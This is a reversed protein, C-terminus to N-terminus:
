VRAHEVLANWTGCARDLLLVSGGVRAPSVAGWSAPTTEREVGTGVVVSSPPRQRRRPAFETAAPKFKGARTTACMHTFGLFAFTQPRRDGRAARNQAAYRGFEILRTKEAALEPNFQAFRERLDVLFQEADDRHQFGAVFDDAFRVLVVDGRAHRARWQNAWLDFVYHLYVNALL